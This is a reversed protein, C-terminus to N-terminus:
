LINKKIKDIVSFFTELEQQSIDKKLVNELNKIENVIGTHIEYAKPTLKLKKLRADYDVSERVILGNEEMRKLISTATSRRISFEKELDKQFVDIEEREILYRLVWGHTGTLNELKKGYVSSDLKRKILNSLCKVEKGVAKNHL